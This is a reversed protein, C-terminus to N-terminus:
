NRNVFEVGTDIQSSGTTASPVRVSIIGSGDNPNAPIQAPEMTTTTSTATPNTRGRCSEHGEHSRGGRRGHHATAVVILVFFLLTKIM